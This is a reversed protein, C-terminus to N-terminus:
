RWLRSVRNLPLQLAWCWMAIVPWRSAVGISLVFTGGAIYSRLNEERRVAPTFSSDVLTPQNIGLNWTVTAIVINLLIVAAYIIVVWSNVSHSLMSTVFPILGVCLLHMMTGAVVTSNAGILYRYRRLHSTWLVATVAFSIVYAGIAPVKQAIAGLVADTSDLAVDEPLRLDLALLTMIIAFVADTFLLLRELKLRDATHPSSM